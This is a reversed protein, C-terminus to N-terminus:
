CHDYVCVEASSNHAPKHQSPYGMKLISSDDRAETENCGKTPEGEREKEVRAVAQELKMAGPGARPIVRPSLGERVKWRM